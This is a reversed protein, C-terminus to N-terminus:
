GVEDNLGATSTARNRMLEACGNQTDGHTKIENLIALSLPIVLM